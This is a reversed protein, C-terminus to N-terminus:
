FHIVLGSWAAGISAGYRKSTATTAAGFSFEFNKFELGTGAHYTSGTHGGARYGLRLPIRDFFRYETGLAMHMRKSNTGFNVFGTGVDMMVSFRGLLLHSGFNIMTPLSRSFESHESTVLNGYVDNGISDRLVSEFYKSDNGDFEENAIDRDYRVGHWFFNEGATFSRARDNVKVSGLDTLSLGLRLKKDGRFIGIDFATLRDIDMELTAGIDLGFSTGKFGTFDDVTPDIFDQLLSEGGNIRQQNYEAIKDSIDGATEITYRFDHNIEADRDGTSDQIRLTSTLNLRTYNMAMLVKPAVGIHLRVNEAFGFMQDREFVTMAFGASIENYILFEHNSNVARAEEFQGSDLGKFVLDAFGRSYGSNGLMRVRSALAASWRSNRYTLGLPVVALDLNVSRYDTSNTGFWQDLMDDAVVGEITRGTTLYENYTSLNLLSGGANSYIGGAIGVTVRPRRERNLVLNAPNIFNAHYLDQYATGGGGLGINQATLHRSQAEAKESHILGGALFLILTFATFINFTPRKM